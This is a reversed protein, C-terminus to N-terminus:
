LIDLCSVLFQRHCNLIVIRIQCRNSNLFGVHNHKISQTKKKEERKPIGYPSFFFSNAYRFPHFFSLLFFLYQSHHNPFSPFFSLFSLFMVCTIPILIQKKKEHTNPPFSRSLFHQGHITFGDTKRNSSNRLSM